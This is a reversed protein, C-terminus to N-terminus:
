PKIWSAAWARIRHWRTEPTENDWGAEDNMFELERVLPAAVGFAASLGNWDEPDLKELEVGRKVGVCGLACVGADSKLDAAILEKVPMADLADVLEQLFAQGRKGKISSAVQGRWRIHDWYDDCDDHYGARSM